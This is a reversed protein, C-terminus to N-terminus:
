VNAKCYTLAMGHRVRCTEIAKYGAGHPRKKAYRMYRASTYRTQLPPFTSSVDIRSLAASIQATFHHRTPSGAQAHPFTLARVM